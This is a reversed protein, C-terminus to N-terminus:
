ERVLSERGPEPTGRLPGKTGYVLPRPRGAALSALSAIATASPASEAIVVTDNLGPLFGEEAFLVAAAGGSLSYLAVDSALSWSPSFYGAATRDLANLESPDCSVTATPTTGGGCIPRQVRVFREHGFVLGVGLVPLDSEAYLQFAPRNPNTPSPVITSLLPCADM